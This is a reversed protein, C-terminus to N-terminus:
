DNYKPITIGSAIIRPDVVIQMKIRWTKHRWLRMAMPLYRLHTNFILILNIKNHPTMNLLAYQNQTM